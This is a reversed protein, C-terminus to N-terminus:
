GRSLRAMYISSPATGDGSGEHSSYYSLLGETESLSVFGPYSTDGGSPLDAVEELSDDDLLYLSTVASRREGYKRGAVLYLDGWKALMPGGIQRDLDTQTWDVYPASSRCIQTPTGDDCRAVALATGDEEFHFATEGGHVPQTLGLHRWIFGDKSELIAAETIAAGDGTSETHAFERKRRGCLYARGAHAIARWIYHGYTGELHKPGNWSGVETDDTWACYGLHRNIDHDQECYWTGTYVFLKDGFALLHPDRVDRDPVSFSFEERWDAGDTSSMVIIKSTDFITHGDPCNRFALYIRGSFWCMDTFANHNDDNYVIGVSEVRIKDSM